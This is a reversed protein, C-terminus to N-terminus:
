CECDYRGTTWYVHCHGDCSHGCHHSFAYVGCPGYSYSNWYCPPQPHGCDSRRTITNNPKSVDVFCSIEEDEAGNSYIKGNIVCYDQNNLTDEKLHNDDRRAMKETVPGKALCRIDESMHLNAYVQNGTVCINQAGVVSWVFSFIFALLFNM